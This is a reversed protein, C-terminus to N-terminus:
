ALLGAAQEFFDDVAATLDMQGFRLAEASRALLQYVERGSRPTLADMPDGVENVLALYESPSRLGDEGESAILASSAPSPPVGRSAGIVEVAEPDHIWFDMFRASEVPFATGAWASMFLNPRVFPARKPGGATDPMPLVQIADPTLARVGVLESSTTFYIPADGNILPSSEHGSQEATIEVPVCGGSDRMDQWWQWFEALDDKEFGLTVPSEETNFWRKGRGRVWTELCEYMGSGDASGWLDGGSTDRIGRALDGLDDWTWAAEPLEFGLDTVVNRNVLVAFADTSIPVGARIDNILGYERMNEDWDNLDVVDGVFEELDLLAGREAYDVIMQNSMQMVDPGNDAAIQTALRDWFDDWSANEPTITVNDTRSNYLEIAELSTRNMEEHGWWAFRMDKQQDDSEPAASEGQGCGTAAAVTLAGLAASSGIVFKRRDLM